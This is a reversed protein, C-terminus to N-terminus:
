FVLGSCTADPVAFMFHQLLYKHHANSEQIEARLILYHAIPSGVRGIIHAVGDTHGNNRREFVTQEGFGVCLNADCVCAPVINGHARDNILRPHPQHHLFSLAGGVGAHYLPRIGDGHYCTCAQDIM